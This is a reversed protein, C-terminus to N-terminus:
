APRVVSGTPTDEIVYGAAKIQDRLADARPWDRAARAEDRQRALDLMEAPVEAEESHLELGLAGTIELVAAAKPAATAPDGADLAANAERVLEFVLAVAAQTHLDDDMAERFRDLAAPESVAEGAAVAPLEAAVRRAFADLRDLAGEADVLADDSVDIPARYHSRLSLLRYARPDYAEVLDLVNSVNGLSKSMKTGEVEVMGTHFWLRSFEHGDAVAQARENEHHPFRLDLGGCHIDFGDGLLDLSMVVCETHWGPRGPGWPSEWSPEGPKAKKWLVFDIPSRKEETAEIRAGARLSELPQGALEGYGPVKEVEMYVGDSTEYAYGGDVLRGILDLMQDVYATAHPDHDPRGVGLSGMGQYWVATCKETIDRWDRQEALARAIIKDEIDTINSVFTVDYGSWVLYRRLVDYSINTRGHGIHPPGYVTPGCAYISVKGPDRPELPVVRGRATDFLRFM